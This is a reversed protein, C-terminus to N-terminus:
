KGICFRGFIEGLLDDAGFEGTIANLADQALRLEEAVLELAPQATGIAACATEVQEGVAQLLAVHRERANVVDEGAGEMGGRRLLEARLGDMGQGGKASLDIRDGEVAPPLGAKDIKNRVTLVPVGPPVAALATADDPSAASADVVHLVLDARAIVRRAREIGLAEVEDGTDRLGATDTVNVSMGEVDIARAITDRTTGPVAAVIAAEEGALANLLSSKGVNPRGAIVVSLGGRLLAGQRARRLAEAVAIRLGELREFAHERKLFDIEEEPFDLTAEILARLEILQDRLLGIDRSFAGELSRAAARAARTSAADILDAVSEAQLLDMRGNLFARRTFEGPEALRCGLELCRRLLMQMVVPGGHGQLELVHEGTYSRPADFYLAIGHDIPAGGADAFPALTAARPVPIRGLIGSMVAGIDPGSVRVVGIGGKGPATAIAAIADASPNM